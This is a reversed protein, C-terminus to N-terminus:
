LVSLCNNLDEAPCSSDLVIKPCQEEPPHRSNYDFVWDSFNKMALKTNVETNKPVQPKELEAREAETSSKFRKKVSLTLKIM